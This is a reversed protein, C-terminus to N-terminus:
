IPMQKDYKLPLEIRADTSLRFQYIRVISLLISFNVSLDSSWHYYLKIAVQISIGVKITIKVMIAIITEINNTDEMAIAISLEEKKTKKRKNIEKILKRYISLLIM